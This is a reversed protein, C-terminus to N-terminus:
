QYIASTVNKQPHIEPSDKKIDIHFAQLVKETFSSCRYTCPYSKKVKTQKLDTFSFSADAFEVYTQWNVGM